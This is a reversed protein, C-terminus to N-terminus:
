HRECCSKSYDDPIELVYDATIVYGEQMLIDVVVLLSGPCDCLFTNTTMICLGNYHRDGEVTRFCASKVCLPRGPATTGVAVM